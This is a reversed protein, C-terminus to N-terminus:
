SHYIDTLEKKKEVNTIVSKIIQRFGFFSFLSQLPISAQHAKSFDLRLCLGHAQLDRLAFPCVWKPTTSPSPPPTASHHHSKRAASTADTSHPTSDLKTIMQFSDDDSDTAHEILNDMDLDSCLPSSPTVPTAPGSYGTNCREPSSSPRSPPRKSNSSKLLPCDRLLLKFARDILAELKPAYDASWPTNEPDPNSNDDSMTDSGDTIWVHGLTKGSMADNATVTRTPSSASDILTDGMIFGAYIVRSTSETAGDGDNAPVMTPQHLIVGPEPNLTQTREPSVRAISLRFPGDDPLGITKRKKPARSDPTVVLEQRPNWTKPKASSPRLDFKCKRPTKTVVHFDAAREMAEPSAMKVNAKSLSPQKQRQFCFTTLTLVAAPMVM